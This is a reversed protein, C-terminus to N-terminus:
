GRDSESTRSHLNAMATALGIAVRRWDAAEQRLPEQGAVSAELVGLADCEHTEERELAESLKQRTDLLSAVCGALKEGRERAEVRWRDAEAEADLARARWVQKTAM